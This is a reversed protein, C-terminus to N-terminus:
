PWCPLASVVAVELGSAVVRQQQEVPFAGTQRCIQPGADDV